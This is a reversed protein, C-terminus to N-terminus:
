RFLSASVLTWNLESRVQRICCGLVRVRVGSLGSDAEGKFKTSMTRQGKGRRLTRSRQCGLSLHFRLPLRRAPVYASGCPGFHM